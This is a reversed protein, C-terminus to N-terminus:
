ARIRRKIRLELEKAPDYAHAARLGRLVNVIFRTRAAEVRTSPNFPEALLEPWLLEIIRKHARSAPPDRDPIDIGLLADAIARCNFPAITEQALDFELHGSALWRGMRNEWYYLDVLLYDLEDPVQRADDLWIRIQQQAFRNGVMNELRALDPPDIRGMRRYGRRSIESCNGTLGLHDPPYARFLGQVTAGWKVHPTAVNGWYVPEFWPDMATPCEIRHHRLGVGTVVREATAADREHLGLAPNTLTYIYADGAFPRAAALVARSDVGATLAIALPARRAAAEVIGSLLTAAREAGADMSAPRRPARPWYRRVRGTSLDLAHNPLLQAVEAFPTSTGPWWFERYSSVYLSSMFELGAPDPALGLEAALLGPQSACWTGRPTTAHVVQRLGCADHLLVTGSPASVILVWRGGMRYLEELLLDESGAVALLDALVELDTREPHAPDLIIGLLTLEVDADRIQRVALDPHAELTYGGAVSFRPWGLGIGSRAPGLIFQRRYLIQALDIPAEVM